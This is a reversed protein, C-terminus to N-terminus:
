KSCNSLEFLLEVVIYDSCQDSLRTVLTQNGVAKGCFKKSRTADANLVDLNMANILSNFSIFRAARYSARNNGLYFNVRKTFLRAFKAILFYDCSQKQIKMTVSSGFAAFAKFQCSKCSIVSLAGCHIVGLRNGSALLTGRKLHLQLFSVYQETKIIM